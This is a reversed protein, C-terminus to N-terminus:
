MPEAQCLSPVTPTPTTFSKQALVDNDLSAQFAPILRFNTKKAGKIPHYKLTKLYSKKVGAMKGELLSVPAIQRVSLVERINLKNHYSSFGYRSFTLM